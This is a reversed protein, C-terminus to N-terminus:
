IVRKWKTKEGEYDSTAYKPFIQILQWFGARYGTYWKGVQLGKLKIGDIDVVTFREHQRRFSCKNISQVM